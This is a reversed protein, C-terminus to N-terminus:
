VPTLAIRGPLPPLPLGLRPSSLCFISVGGLGFRGSVLIQAPIGATKGRSEWAVGVRSGAVGVRSGHSEWTVGVDVGVRSGRSEWAVGM